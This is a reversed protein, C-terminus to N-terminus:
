GLLFAIVVGVLAAAGVGAIEVRHRALVDNLRGDTAAVRPLSALGLLVIAALLLAILAPRLAQATKEVPTSGLVGGTDPETTGGASAAEQEAKTGFSGDEDSGNTGSSVGTISAGTWGAGAGAFERTAACVNATRLAALESRTPAGGAIVVVILRQVAQGAATHATIRYTGAGLKERGIRSAFRIRNLGKHGRVAFRAVTACSPSVQEVVFIVKGRKSLVFTLTTARKGSTGIWKRSSHLRKVRPGNAAPKYSFTSGASTSGASSAGPYWQASGGGASSAGLGSLRAPASSGATSV